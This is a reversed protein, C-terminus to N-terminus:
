LDSIKTSSLNLFALQTLEIIETPIATLAATQRDPLFTQLNLSGAGSAKADAIKQRAYEYAEAREEDTFETESM